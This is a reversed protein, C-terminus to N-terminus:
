VARGRQPYCWGSSPLNEDMRELMADIAATDTVDALEVEIKAGRNRLADIAEAAEPDTTM